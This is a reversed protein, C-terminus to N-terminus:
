DIESYDQAIVEDVDLYTTYNPVALDKISMNNRVLMDTRMQNYNLKDKEQLQRKEKHKKVVDKSIEYDNTSDKMALDKLQDQTELNQEKQAQNAGQSFGLLIIVMFSIFIVGSYYKDSDAQFKIRTTVEHLKFRDLTNKLDGLLSFKQKIDKMEHIEKFSKAYKAYNPDNKINYYHEAADFNYYKEKFKDFNENYQESNPRVSEFGDSDKPDRIQSKRTSLGRLEKIREYSEQIVKFMESANDADNIDPHYQAILKLYKKKISKFDEHKEANIIRYPDYYAKDLTFNVTCFTRYIPLISIKHRITKQFINRIM